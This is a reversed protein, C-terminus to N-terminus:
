ADRLNLYDKLYTQNKRVIIFGFNVFLNNAQASPVRMRMLLLFDDPTIFFDWVCNMDFFIQM